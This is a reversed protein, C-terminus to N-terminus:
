GFPHFHCLVEDPAQRNLVREPTSFKPPFNESLLSLKYLAILAFLLLLKDPANFSMRQLVGM